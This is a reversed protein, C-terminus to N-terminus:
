NGRYLMGSDRAFRYQAPVEKLAMRALQVLDGDHQRKVREFNIFTCNDFARGELQDDFHEMLEFPGDGLGVILISLPTARSADIIAQKTAAIDTVDGDTLIVLIHFSNRAERTIAMAQRILPAFNTPGDLEARPITENYVRIVDDIGKAEGSLKTLAAGKAGFGYVPILHDDDLDALADGVLRIAHQYPNTQGSAITHMPKGFCREGTWNNSRTLDIGFILNCSELGQKRLGLQVDKLTRTPASAYFDREAEAVERQAVAQVAQRARDRVGEPNTYWLVGGFALLIFLWAPLLFAAVLTILAIHGKDM